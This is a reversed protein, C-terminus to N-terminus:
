GAARGCSQTLFSTYTTGMAMQVSLYYGIPFARLNVIYGNLGAGGPDTQAITGGPTCVLSSPTGCLAFFLLGTSSPPTVPGYIGATLISDTTNLLEFEWGVPAARSNTNLSLMYTLISGDGGAVTGCYREIALTASTQNWALILIVIVAALAALVLLGVFVRFCTNSVAGCTCRKARNVPAEAPDVKIYDVPDKTRRSSM